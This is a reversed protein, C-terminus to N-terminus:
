SIWKYPGDGNINIDYKLPEVEIDHRKGYVHWYFKVPDIVSSYVTFKNNIIESTSLQCFFGRYVHTVNISFDKAIYSVYNPLEIEVKGDVTEAKGRYYYVGAEPGELCSHILYKNNDTPHDIIFSKAGTPGTPGNYVVQSVTVITSPIQPGSILSSSPNALIQVGSDDSHWYLEIYDNSELSVLILVVM